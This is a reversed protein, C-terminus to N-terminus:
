KNPKPPSVPTVTRPTTTTLMERLAPLSIMQPKPSHVIPSSGPGNSQRSSISGVGAIFPSPPMPSPRDVAGLSPTGPRAPLSSKSPAPLKFQKAQKPPSVTTTAMTTVSDLESKTNTRTPAKSLMLISFAAERFDEDETESASAIAAVSALTSMTALNQAAPPLIAPSPRSPVEPINFEDDDESFTGLLPGTVGGIIPRSLPHPRMPGFPAQITALSSTLGAGTGTGTNSRKMANRQLELALPEGSRKREFLFSSSSGGASGITHARTLLPSQQSLQRHVPQPLQLPPRVRPRAGALKGDDALQELQSLTLHSYGNKAKWM